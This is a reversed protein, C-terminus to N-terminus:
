NKAMKLNLDENPAAAYLEGDANYFLDTGDEFCARIVKGVMYVGTVKKGSNTVVPKGSLAESLNFPKMKYKKNYIGGTKAKKKICFTTLLVM